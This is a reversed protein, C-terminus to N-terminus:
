RSQEVRRKLASGSAAFGSLIRARFARGILPSLLGVMVEETRYLTRGDPLPTLYQVREARHLVRGLDDAWGLAEGPQDITLLETNHLAIPLTHVGVPTGDRQYPGWSIGLVVKDGRAATAPSVSRNLPNWEPYAALDRLVAWVADVPAHIEVAPVVFVARFLGEAPPASGVTRTGFLASRVTLGAPATGTPPPTAVPM